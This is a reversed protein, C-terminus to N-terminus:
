QKSVSNTNSQTNTQNLSDLMMKAYANGQIASLEFLMKARENNQKVGKLGNAYVLGLGLQADPSGAAAAKTLTEIEESPYEGTMANTVTVANTSDLFAVANTATQPPPEPPQPPPAPPPTYVPAAPVPTSYDGGDTTSSYHSSHSAHSTHDAYLLAIRGPPPQLILQANKKSLDEGFPTASPPLSNQAVQSQTVNATQLLAMSAASLSLVKKLNEKRAM